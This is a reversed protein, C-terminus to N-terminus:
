YCALPCDAMISWDLFAREMPVPGFKRRQKVHAVGAVTILLRGKRPRFTVADRSIRRVSFIKLGARENGRKPARDSACRERIVIFSFRIWIEPVLNVKRRVNGGAILKKHPGGNIRNDAPTEVKLFRVSM